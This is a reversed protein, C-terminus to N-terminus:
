LQSLKALTSQNEQIFSDLWNKFELTLPPPTSSKSTTITITKSDPNAVLQVQDGTQLELQSLLQQNLIVAASNGVRIIKQTM